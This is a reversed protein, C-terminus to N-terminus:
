TTNFALVEELEVEGLLEVDTTPGEAVDAGLAMEDISASGVALGMAGPLEIM